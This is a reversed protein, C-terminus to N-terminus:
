LYENYLERDALLHTEFTTNTIGLESIESNMISHSLILKGCELRKVQAM